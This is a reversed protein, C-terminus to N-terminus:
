MMDRLKKLADKGRQSLYENINVHNMVYFAAAAGLAIQNHSLIDVARSALGLPATGLNM